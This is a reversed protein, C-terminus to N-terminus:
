LVFLISVSVFYVLTSSLQLEAAKDGNTSPQNRTCGRFIKVGCAELIGLIGFVILVTLFLGCFGWILSRQRQKKRAKILQVYADHSYNKANVVSFEICDAMEGQYDVLAAIRIFAGRIEGVSKEIRAMDAKKLRRDSETTKAFAKALTTDPTESQSMNSEDPAALNHYNSKRSLETSFTSECSAIHTLISRLRKAYGNCVSNRFTIESTNKGENSGEFSTTSTQLYELTQKAEQLRVGADALCQEFSLISENYADATTASYLVMILDDLRRVSDEIADLLNRLIDSSRLFAAQITPDKTASGPVRVLNM